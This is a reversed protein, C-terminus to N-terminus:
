EACGPLEAGRLRALGEVSMKGRMSAAWVDEPIVQAVPSGLQMLGSHGGIAEAIAILCTPACEAGCAARLLAADPDSGLDLEDLAPLPPAFPARGAIAEALHPVAELSAMTLDFYERKAQARLAERALRREGMRDLTAVTEPATRVDDIDRMLAPLEGELGDLWSVGSLGGPARLLAIREERTLADLAEGHLEGMHEITGLLLRARADGEAALTAMEQLPAIDDGALWRDLAGEFTQASAPVATAVALIGSMLIAKLCTTM